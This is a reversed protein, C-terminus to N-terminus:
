STTLRGREKGVYIFDAFVPYIKKLDLIQPDLSSNLKPKM